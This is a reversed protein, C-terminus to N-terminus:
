KKQRKKIQIERARKIIQEFIPMNGPCYINNIEPILLNPEFQANWCRLITAKFYFENLKKIAGYLGENWVDVIDIKQFLGWKIEFKFKIEQKGSM